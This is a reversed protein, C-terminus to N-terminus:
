GYIVVNTGILMSFLITLCPLMLRGELTLFTSSSRRFPLTKTFVTM